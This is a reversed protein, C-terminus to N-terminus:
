REEWNGKQFLDDIFLDEFDTASASFERISITRSPFKLEKTSSGLSITEGNYYLKCDFSSVDSEAPQMYTQPIVQVSASMSALLYTGDELRYEKDLTVNYYIPM